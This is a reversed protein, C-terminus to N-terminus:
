HNRKTKKDRAKAILQDVDDEDTADSDHLDDTEEDSGLSASDMKPNLLGTLEEVSLPTKFRLIEEKHEMLKDLIESITIDSDALPKSLDSKSASYSTGNDTATAKIKYDCGDHVDTVDEDGWETMISNFLTWSMGLKEIKQTERNWIIAYARKKPMLAKMADQANKDGREKAEKYREFAYDCIPCPGAGVSQPCCTARYSNTPYLNKHEKVTIFPINNNFSLPLIRVYAVKGAELKFWPLYKSATGSTNVSKGESLRKWISKLAEVNTTPLPSSEKQSSM